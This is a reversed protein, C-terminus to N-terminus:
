MKLSLSKMIKGNDVRDKWTQRDIEKWGKGEDEGMEKHVDVGIMMARRFEVKTERQEIRMEAAPIEEERKGGGEIDMIKIQGVMVIM